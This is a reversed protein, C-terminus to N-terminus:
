QWEKEFKKWKGEIIAKRAELLLNQLYHMNHISLLLQANQEKVKFLHHILAAPHSSCTYCKCERVLPGKEKAFVSKTADLFKAGSFFASHRAMRTPYCSDFIDIGLGICKVIEKASGVGMLHVPKEEPFIKKSIAAMEILESSKEGIGLGGIAYGDFGIETIERSSRKRLERFTGGQAIGFLLQKKNKHEQRCQKAWKTTRELSEVVKEKELGAKPMHDLCFAADSGLANQIEVANKPTLVMKQMTFPNRFRIGTDNIGLFLKEAISQFGGSDTFIPKRWGFFAHIGGVRKITQIGPKLYLLLSNTIIGQAGMEELQRNTLFKAAGKTEVPLLCPTLMKGHTTHLIGARAKGQGAIIKFM